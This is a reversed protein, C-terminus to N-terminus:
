RCPWRLGIQVIPSDPYTELGPGFSSFPRGSGELVELARVIRRRNAPEMRAAAMPDVAQLRAFLAGTDPEDELRARVEPWSGPLDLQNVLAALYLGTGAVLLPTRSRRGIDAIAADAAQQFEAVTFAADPDVLDLCHHPVAHRDAPTPKATGIDMGRYVQMADVAVIEATGTSQAAAMALDSKGSATAGVVAVARVSRDARSM